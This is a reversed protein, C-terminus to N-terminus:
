PHKVTVSLSGGKPVTLVGQSLVTAGDRVQVDNRGAPVPIGSLPATGAYRGNVFLSARGGEVDLSLTSGAKDNRKKKDKAAVTKGAEWKAGSAPGLCLNSPDECAMSAADATGGTSLSLGLALGLAISGLRRLRAQVPRLQSALM